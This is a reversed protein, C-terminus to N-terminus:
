EAEGRVRLRKRILDPISEAKMKRMIKARHAEVTKFSVGLKDGIERSSFGDVVLEMVEFERPTLQDILSQIKLLDRRRRVNGEDLKIAKQVGEILTQDSVPKPLFDVAGKKMARVASAVEPYATMIVIPIDVQQECLREQIELGSVEPMRLDLLICGPISADFNNLFEVPSSFTRVDIGVSEILYKLSRLVAPDDDVIRVLSTPLVGSSTSPSSTRPMTTTM